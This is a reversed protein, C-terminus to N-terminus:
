GKLLYAIQAKKSVSKRVVSMEKALTVQYAPAPCQESPFHTTFQASQMAPVLLYPRAPIKANKKCVPNGAQVTETQQVNLRQYQFQQPLFFLFIKCHLCQGSLSFLHATSVKAAFQAMHIEQTALGVSAYQETIEPLATLMSQATM